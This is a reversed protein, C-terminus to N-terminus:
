GPAPGLRLGFTIRLADRQPAPLGDLRDAAARMVLATRRLGAGDGVPCGGNTGRPRGRGARGPVGATRDQGCRSAGLQRVPAIALWRRISSPAAPVPGAHGARSTAFSGRWAM